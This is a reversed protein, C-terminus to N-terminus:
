SISWQKKPPAELSCRSTLLSSGMNPVEYLGGGDRTCGVKERCHQKWLSRDDNVVPPAVKRRSFNPSFVAADRKHEEKIVQVVYLRGGITALTFCLGINQSINLAGM